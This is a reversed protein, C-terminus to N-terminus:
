SIEPPMRARRRWVFGRSPKPGEVSGIAFPSCAHVVLVSYQNTLASTVQILLFDLLYAAAESRQGCAGQNCYADEVSFAGVLVTAGKPAGKKLDAGM